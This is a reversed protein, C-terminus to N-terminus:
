GNGESVANKNKKFVLGWIISMGMVWLMGMRFSITLWVAVGHWMGCEQGCEGVVKNNSM